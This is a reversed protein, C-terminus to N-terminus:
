FSTSSGGGGSSGGGWSGGSGSWWSRGSRSSSSLTDAFPKKDTEQHIHGCNKCKFTYNYVLFNPEKDGSKIKILDICDSQGCNECTLDTQVKKRLRSSNIIWKIIMPTFLVTIPAFLLLPILRKHEYSNEKVDIFKKYPNKTSDSAMKNIKKVWQRGLVVNIFILFALGIVMLINDSFEDDKVQQDYLAKFDSSNNLVRQIEEAGAILGGGYDGGKMLPIMLRTQIMKCLGDPLSSELGYGTEFVIERRSMDTLLLVLLGNDKGKEGLGWRNFLLHAFERGNAYEDSILPLVVIAMQAGTESRIAAAITNLRATDEASVIKEPDTTYATADQLQVNPVKEVTYVTTPLVLAAEATTNTTNASTVNATETYSAGEDTLQAYSQIAFFCCCLMATIFNKTSMITLEIVIVGCLYM